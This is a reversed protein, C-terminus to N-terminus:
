PSSVELTLYVTLLHPINRDVEPLVPEKALIAASPAAQGLQRDNRVGSRLCPVM